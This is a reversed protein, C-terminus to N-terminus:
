GSPAFRGSPRRLSWSISDRYATRAQESFVVVLGCNLLRLRERFDEAPLQFFGQGMNTYSENFPRRSSWFGNVQQVHAMAPTLGFLHPIPKTGFPFVQPEDLVLPEWTHM